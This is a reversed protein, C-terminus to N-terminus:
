DAPQLGADGNGLHARGIRHAVARPDEGAKLAHTGSVKRERDYLTLKGGYSSYFVERVEGPDNASPRSFRSLFANSKRRRIPTPRRLSSRLQPAEGRPGVDRDCRASAAGM